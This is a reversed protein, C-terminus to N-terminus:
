RFYVWPGLVTNYLPHFLGVLMYLRQVAMIAIFSVNLFSCLRVDGFFACYM